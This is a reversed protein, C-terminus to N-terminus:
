VPGSQDHIIHPPRLRDRWWLVNMGFSYVLFLFFVSGSIRKASVALASLWNTNSHIALYHQYYVASCIVIIVYIAWVLNNPIRAREIPDDLKPQKGLWLLFGGIMPILLISSAHQVIQFWRVKRGDLDFAVRRLAPFQKVGWGFYHSFSDWLVHTAAGLTVCMLAVFIAQPNLKIRKDIWPRMRSTMEIPFLDYFPQKLFAHFCYYLLAGIPMCHTVIGYLSHTTQYALLWPYSSAIDPIIAGAVLASLPLKWRSIWAFPLTAAIHTVTFPM